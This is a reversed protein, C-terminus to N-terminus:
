SHWDLIESSKPKALYTTIDDSLEIILDAFSFIPDLM